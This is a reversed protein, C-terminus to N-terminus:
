FRTNYKAVSINLASIKMESTNGGPPESHGFWIVRLRLFRHLCKELQVALQATVAALHV